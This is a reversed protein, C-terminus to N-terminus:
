IRETHVPTQQWGPDVTIPTYSPGGTYATNWRRLNLKMTMLGRNITQIDGGIYAWRGVFLAPCPLNATPAIIVTSMPLPFTLLPLLGMPYFTVQCDQQQRFPTVRVVDGRRDTQEALGFLDRVANGILEIVGWGTVTGYNPVGLITTQGVYTQGPM